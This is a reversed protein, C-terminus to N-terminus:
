RVACAEPRRPYRCNAGCKLRPKWWRWVVKALPLTLMDTIFQGAHQESMAYYGSPLLGGNLTEKLHILWGNHFDHFTGADVLTWDHVPM